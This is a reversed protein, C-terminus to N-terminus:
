EASLAVETYMFDGFINDYGATIHYGSHFGLAASSSAYQATNLAELWIIFIFGWDTIMM